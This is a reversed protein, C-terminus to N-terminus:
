KERILTELEQCLVDAEDTNKAELCRAIKTELEKRRTEKDLYDHSFHNKYIMKRFARGSMPRITGNDVFLISDACNAISYFDHSVMLVAGDYANLAKELAIQAYLDLHSSPEDLLLLNADGVALKALQLLNKEGGSLQRIPRYMDDASFCYQELHAQLQEPSHLGLDHFEEAITNQENLTEEQLQSFFGVKAESSFHISGTENRWIDRLMTTKGTGNPGVIAVKEGPCVSFSVNELLNKDFRLNYNVVELLPAESEGPIVEPLHIDPERIEVFPKQISKAQWREMYTVKAKLSRGKTPDVWESAEERLREVMEAARQYESEGIAAVKQLEIKKKLLSVQYEKFTGNYEQLQANELHWILDFCHELLYRNHTVVLLTGAYNNILERLGALNEFDLFVDPEDLILLGPRRLIHRIIQILKYEGGSLKSLELSSKDALGSLQLQRLINREYNDADISESEDLLRQYEDMLPELDEEVAMKDCVADIQAQLQTFDQSLYENVTLDIQKDRSTFQSAYGIRGVNERTLKGDFLYHEPRRILDVLTTKGSGNSGILVCHRDDPLDFSINHYLYKDAFGYTLQEAHIM